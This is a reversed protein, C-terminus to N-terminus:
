FYACKKSNRTIKTFAFEWWSDQLSQRAKATSENSSNQTASQQMPITFSFSYSTHYYYGTVTKVSNSSYRPLDFNLFCKLYM